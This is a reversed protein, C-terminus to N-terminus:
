KVNTIYSVPKYRLLYCMNYTCNSVIVLSSCISLKWDHKSTIKLTVIEVLDSTHIGQYARSVNSGKITNCVTYPIEYLVLWLM